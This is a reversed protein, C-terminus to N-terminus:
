SFILYIFYIAMVAYFAMFLSIEFKFKLWTVYAKHKRGIGDLLHRYLDRDAEAKKANHYFKSEFVLEPNGLSGSEYFVADCEQCFEHLFENLEHRPSMQRRGIVGLKLFSGIIDDYRFMIPHHRDIYQRIDQPSIIYETHYYRANGTEYTHSM